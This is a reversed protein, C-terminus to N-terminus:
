LVIEPAHRPPRVNPADEVWALSDLYLPSSLKYRRDSRWIVRIRRESLGNQECVYVARTVTSFGDCMTSENRVHMITWDRREQRVLRAYRLWSELRVFPKIAHYLSVALLLRMRKM